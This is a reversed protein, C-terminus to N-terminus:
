LYIPRDTEKGGSGGCFDFDTEQGCWIIIDICERGLEFRGEWWWRHGHNSLKCFQGIPGLSIVRLQSHHPQPPTRDREAHGKNTEPSTSSLTKFIIPGRPNILLISNKEHILVMLGDHCGSRARLVEKAEFNSILSIFICGQNQVHPFNLKLMFIM